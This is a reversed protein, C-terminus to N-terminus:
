KETGPQSSRVTDPPGKPPRKRYTGLKEGRMYLGWFAEVAQATCLRVRGVTFSELAGCAAWSAVTALPRRFHAAAMAITLLGHERLRAEGPTM